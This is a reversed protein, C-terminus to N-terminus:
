PYWAKIIEELIPVLERETSVELNWGPEPNGWLRWGNEPIVCVWQWRVSLMIGHDKEQPYYVLVGSLKCEKLFLRLDESDEWWSIVM